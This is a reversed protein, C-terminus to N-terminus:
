RDPLRRPRAQRDHTRFGPLRAWATTYADVDFAQRNVVQFQELHMHMPHADVTLNIWQWTETTGAKVFDTSRTWSTTATSCCRTPNDDADTNEKLVVDRPPLQPTPTLRPVAPLKLKAPLVSTDPDNAPVPTNVNIKM